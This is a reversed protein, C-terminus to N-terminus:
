TESLACTAGVEFTTSVSVHLPHVCRYHIHFCLSEDIIAFASQLSHAPLSLPSHTGSQPIVHGSEIAPTFHLTRVFFLVDMKLYHLGKPITGCSENPTKRTTTTAVHKPVESKRSELPKIHHFRRKSAKLNRRTPAIVPQLHGSGGALYRVDEISPPPPPFSMLRKGDLQGKSCRLNIFFTTPHCLRLRICLATMVAVASSSLPAPSRGALSKLLAAHCRLARRAIFYTEIGITLM